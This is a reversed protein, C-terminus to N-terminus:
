KGLVLCPVLQERSTRDILPGEAARCYLGSFKGGFVFEGMHIFRPELEFDDKLVGIRMEPERVFEQLVYDEELATEILREWESPTKQFGLFVGRGEYLNSPKLVFGDKGDRALDIMRIREGRYECDADEFPRTWPVHRQILARERDTFLRSLKPDYLLGFIKKSFAVDSRFSGVLCVNHDKFAQTMAKVEDLREIYESSVVRRYILDIKAGDLSLARGDYDLERPDAVLAEYGRGRCFEAFAIFEACTRAERWDAIAIRPKGTAGAATTGAFQAYCGLLTDLVSQSIDFVGIQRSSFLKEVIPSALFLKSVKEAGDMGATGDTNIETFRLDKGDFFSDFRACPISFDYGPDIEILELQEPSFGFFDRISSEQLFLKTAREMLKMMAEAVSAIHELQRASLIIPYFGISLPQGAYLVHNEAADAEFKGIANALETPDMTLHDNLENYLASIASDMKFVESERTKLMQEM